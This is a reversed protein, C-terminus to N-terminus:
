NNFNNLSKFLFKIMFYYTSGFVVSNFIYGYLNPNGDKNFLTPLFKLLYKRIIPLNYLFYLISILLPMQIDQYLTELSDHQQMQRNNEEILEEPTEYNQIYDEVERQEPIYNPKIEQDMVVNQTTMPIDRSPLQTAGMEDARQIQSIIENYSQKEINEINNHQVPQINNTIGPGTPLENISTTGLGASM